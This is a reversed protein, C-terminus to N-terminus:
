FFLPGLFECTEVHQLPERPGRTRDGSHDSASVPKTERFQYPRKRLIRGRMTSLVFTEQYPGQKCRSIGKDDEPGQIFETSEDYLFIQLDGFTGNERRLVPM